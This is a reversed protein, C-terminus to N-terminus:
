AGAAIRRRVTELGARLKGLSAALRAEDSLFGPESSLRALQEAARRTAARDFAARKPWLDALGYLGPRVVRWWAHDVWLKKLFSPPRDRGRRFRTYAAVVEDLDAGDRVPFTFDQEFVGLLGDRIVELLSTKELLVPRYPVGLGMTWDLWKVSNIGRSSVLPRWPVRLADAVIAAHLSDALVLKSRNIRAVVERPDDRPDVFAVGALRCAEPWHGLGAVSVHPVFATGERGLPKGSLAPLDVLLAAADTAALNPEVGLVKATVPGRVALISWSADLRPPPSYGIGSGLVVKSWEGPPLRMGLVTGVGLLLLGDDREGGLEPCLEAWIWHNLDDGFNGEPDYCHFFRM